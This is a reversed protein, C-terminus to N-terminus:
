IRCWIAGSAGSLVLYGWIAGSLVLYNYIPESLVLLCWIAGSAGPLVLYGWIAGPQGRYCWIAGALGLSGWIAGSLWLHARIGWCWFAGSPLLHGLYCWITNTLRLNSWIPGSLWLCARITGSGLIEISFKWAASHLWSCRDGLELIPPPPARAALRM